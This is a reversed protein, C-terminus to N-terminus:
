GAHCDCTCTCSGRALQVKTALNRVDSRAVARDALCQSVSSVYAEQCDDDLWPINLPNYASQMHTRPTKYSAELISLLYYIIDSNVGIGLALKETLM